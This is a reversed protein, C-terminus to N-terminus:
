DQVRLKQIRSSMFEMEHSSAASKVNVTSESRVDELSKSKKLMLKQRLIKGHCDTLISNTVSDNGQLNDCTDMMTSSNVSDVITTTEQFLASTPDANESKTRSREPIYYPRMRMPPVRNPM